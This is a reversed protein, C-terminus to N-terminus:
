CSAGPSAPAWGSAEQNKRPRWSQLTSPLLPGLLHALHCSWTRTAMPDQSRCLKDGTPAGHLCKPQETAPQWAGGPQGQNEASPSATSFCSSSFVACASVASAAAPPAAAHGASAPPWPPRPGPRPHPHSCPAPGGAAAAWEAGQGTEGSELELSSAPLPEVDEEPQWRPPTPGSGEGAEEDGAGLPLRLRLGPEWVEPKEPERKEGAEHEMREPEDLWRSTPPRREGLLLHSWALPCHAPSPWHGVLEAVRERAEGAGNPAELRRTFGRSGWFASLILILIASRPLAQQTTHAPVRSHILSTGPARGSGWAQRLSCDWPQAWFLM